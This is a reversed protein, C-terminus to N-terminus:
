APESLAESLNLLSNEIISVATLVEEESTDSGLSFRISSDAEEATLGIGMLVHSPVAIGSSCASGTSAALKPQISNLIESASFDHFCINANGPHRAELPPGNLSLNWTSDMLIEVFQDRRKRMNLKKSRSDEISLLKAATAMGVCLPVPVTGSRIGNQQGGGYILPEIRDQLDRRIYLAGIGQPGYMKHASLSVMDVYETINGLEIAMPAQAADTHFIAGFNHILESLTKLDQITGIENNVAMISVLLVNDDLQTTLENLLIRGHSDVPIEEVQYGHQEKLVRCAELICKHEVTSILIRQRDGSTSAKGFGLIALNNAESAGSTFIIEDDNAGLMNAISRASNALIRSCEWGIMHDTSHPNGTNNSFYHLMKDLVFRNIPTSAQHDFNIPKIFNM